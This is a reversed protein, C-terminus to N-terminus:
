REMVIREGITFRYVPDAPLGASRLAPTLMRQLAHATNVHPQVSNQLHIKAQRILAGNVLALARREARRTSGASRAWGRETWVRLESLNPEVSYVEPVPVTIEILTDGSIRIQEPKLRRVDFGYFARGPVQVTAKSTGLTIDLLEPLIERTNEVTTTAVIDLTGTVLFSAQAERQLTTIVQDRVQEETLSPLLARRALLAILVIALVVGTGALFWRVHRQNM